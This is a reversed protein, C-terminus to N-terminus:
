AKEVGQGRRCAQDRAWSGKGDALGGQHAPQPGELCPVGVKCPM